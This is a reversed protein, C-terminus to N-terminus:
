TGRFSCGFGMLVLLWVRMEHGRFFFEFHCPLHQLESDQCFEGPDVPLAEQGEQSNTGERSYRNKREYDGDLLRRQPWREHQQAQRCHDRNPIPEASRGLRDLAGACPAM